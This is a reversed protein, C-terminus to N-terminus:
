DRKGLKQKISFRSLLENMERTFDDLEEVNSKLYAFLMKLDKSKSKLKTEEEILEILGMSTSIPKRVNHSIMYLLQEIHINNSIGKNISKQNTEMPIRISFFQIIKQNENFVPFILTDLWFYTGDKAKNKIKGQWINGSNITDWLNKYFEKTHYGSKLFSYNKGAVEEKTYKSIECFKKNVFLINGKLDSISFIINSEITHKHNKIFNLLDPNM